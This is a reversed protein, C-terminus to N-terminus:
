LLNTAVVEKKLATFHGITDTFPALQADTAGLARCDAVSQVIMGQVLDFLAEKKADHGHLSEIHKFAARITDPTHSM